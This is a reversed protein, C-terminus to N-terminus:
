HVLVERWPGVRKQSFSGAVRQTLRELRAEADEVAQRYERLVLYESRIVAPRPSGGTACLFPNCSALPSSCSALVSAPLKLYSIMRRAETGQPNGALFKLTFPTKPIGDAIQRAPVTKGALFIAYVSYSHHYLHGTALLTSLPFEPFWVNTTKSENYATVCPLASVNLPYGLIEQSPRLPMIFIVLCVCILSQAALNWQLGAKRTIEFLALGGIVLGFLVPQVSYAASNFNGGVKVLGLLSFPLMVLAVILASATLTFAFRLSNEGSQKSCVNLGLVLAILLLYLLWYHRFFFVSEQLFLQLREM